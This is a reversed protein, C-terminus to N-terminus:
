SRAGEFGLLGCLGCSNQLCLLLRLLQAITHSILRANRLACERLYALPPGLGASAMFCFFVSATTVSREYFFSHRTDM